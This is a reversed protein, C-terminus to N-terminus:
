LLVVVTDHGELVRRVVRFGGGSRSRGGTKVGVRHCECEPTGRGGHRGLRM